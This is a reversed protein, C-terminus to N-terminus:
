NENKESMAILALIYDLDIDFDVERNIEKLENEITELESYLELEALELELRLLQLDKGM